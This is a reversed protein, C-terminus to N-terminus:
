GASCAFSRVTLKPAIENITLVLQDPKFLAASEVAGLADNAGFLMALPPVLDNQNIYNQVAKVQGRRVLEDWLHLSEPTIQPGYLVVRDAKVDKNELAALCIMAGNSHCALEEFQRNKLSDYAEQQERSYQGNKLEDLAARPLDGIITTSAAIGLVFNYRQFDIGEAYPIDALTMQQSLVARAKAVLRPDADQVNYGLIWKMGGVLATGSPRYRQAGSDPAVAANGAAGTGEDSHDANRPNEVEGLQKSNSTNWLVASFRASSQVLFQSDSLGAAQRLFSVAQHRYLLDQHPPTM